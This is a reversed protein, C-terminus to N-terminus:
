SERRAPILPGAKLSTAHESQESQLEFTKFNSVFLKPQNQPGAYKFQLKATSMEPSSEIKNKSKSDCQKKDLTSFDKSQRETVPKTEIKSKLGNM